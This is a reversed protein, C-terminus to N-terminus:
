EVASWADWGGLFPNTTKQTGVRAITIKKELSGPGTRLMVRSVKRRENKKKARLM